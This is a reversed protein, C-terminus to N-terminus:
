FRGGVGLAAGGPIPSIFPLITTGLVPKMKERDNMARIAKISYAIGTAALALHHVMGIIVLPLSDYIMGSLLLPTGVTFGAIAWSRAGIYTSRLTVARYTRAYRALTEIGLPTGVSLLVGATITLVLGSAFHKDMDAMFFGPGAIMGVAGITCLVISLVAMKKIVPKSEYVPDCDLGSSSSEYGEDCLCQPFGSSIICMGLGSCTVGDCTVTTETRTLMVKIHKDKGGTVQVIKQATSFGGAGVDIPYEGEDLVLPKGLPMTGLFVGSVYVSAEPVNCSFTVSGVHAGIEALLAEVQSRRIETIADKEDELYELLTERAKVYQKVGVHHKAKKFLPHEAMLIEYLLSQVEMKRPEAPQEVEALYAKLEVEAEDHRDLEFLLKGIEYRLEPGPENEYAERLEVLAAEPDLIKGPAPEEQAHSPPAALAAALLVLVVWEIEHM